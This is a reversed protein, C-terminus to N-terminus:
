RKKSKFVTNLKDEIKEKFGIKDKILLLVLFVLLYFASVILFGQFEHPLLKGLWIALALNLFLFFVIAFFVLTIFVAAKSILEALEEKAEIKAIEIKSEVIGILHDIAGDLKLFSLIGKKEAM